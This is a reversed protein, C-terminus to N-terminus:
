PKVFVNRNKTQLDNRGSVGDGLEVVGVVYFFFNLKM